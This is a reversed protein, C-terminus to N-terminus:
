AKVWQRLLSVVHAHTLGGQVYVTYPPRLPADASLEISSGDIFTGGAMIVPDTYGPVVAPEPRVYSSIPSWQQITQCFRQIEDADNLFVTQIIDSRPAAPLPSVSYGMAQFTAALLTMGKLAEAVVGPALFLGQLMLRTLNFLTGGESGIGPCTLAEACAEVLDARGAVYGGAPVIGGGPNKILSGAMLDAGVATPEQAEVFEGYCNDVMIVADPNLRRVSEFWPALQDIQLSPRRSYGRSRQFYVMRAQKVLVAEDPTLTDRLTYTDTAADHTFISAEAYHVGRATLSQRSRTDPPEPTGHRTIGLVPELTDYPHGTLTLLLDGPGLIGNLAVALAHTGSVIHPRVLAAEAQLAHAFVKDMAERGLDNHGYGTVCYFHEEGVRHRRFGELVREFTTYQTAEIAPWLTQRVHALTADLLATNPPSSPAM